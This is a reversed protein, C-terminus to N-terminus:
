NYLALLFTLQSPLLLETDLRDFDLDMCFSGVSLSRSDLGHQLIAEYVTFEEKKSACDVASM